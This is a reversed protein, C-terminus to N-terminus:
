GNCRRCYSCWDKAESINVAFKYMMNFNHPSLGLTEAGVSQHAVDRMCFAERGPLAAEYWYGVPNKGDRAYGLATRKTRDFTEQLKTDSTSLTVSSPQQANFTQTLFM